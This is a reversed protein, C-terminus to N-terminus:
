IDHHRAAYVKFITTTFPTTARKIAQSALKM